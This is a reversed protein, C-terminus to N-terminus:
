KKSLNVKTFRVTKQKAFEFPFDVSFKNRMLSKYDGIITKNKLTNHPFYKLLFILSYVGLLLGFLIGLVFFWIGGLCSTQRVLSVYCTSIGSAAIGVVSCIIIGKAVNHAGRNLVPSSVVFMITIILMSIAVVLATASGFSSLVKFGSQIMFIIEIVSMVVSTSSFILMLLSLIFGKLNGPSPTRDFDNKVFEKAEVHYRGMEKYSEDINDWYLIYNNLIKKENDDKALEKMKKTLYTKKDRGRNYIILLEHIKKDYNSRMRRPRRTQFDVDNPYYDCLPGLIRNSALAYKKRAWFYVRGKMDLEIDNHNIYYNPVEKGAILDFGINGMAFFAYSYFDDPYAAIMERGIKELMRFEEEKLLSLAENFYNDKSINSM